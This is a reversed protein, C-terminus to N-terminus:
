LYSQTLYLSEGDSVCGRLGISMSLEVRESLEKGSEDKYKYLVLPVEVVGGSSVTRSRLIRLREAIYDINWGVSKEGNLWICLPLEKTTYKLCEVKESVYLAVAVRNRVPISTNGISKSRIMIKRLMGGSKGGEPLQAGKLLESGTYRRRVDEGLIETQERAKKEHGGRGSQGSHKQECSGGETRPRSCAEGGSTLDVTGPRPRAGEALEGCLHIESGVHSICFMRKCLRCEFPLFQIQSCEPLSCREGIEEVETM